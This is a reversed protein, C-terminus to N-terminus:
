LPVLSDLTKRYHNKRPNRLFQQLLFRYFFQSFCSICWQWDHKIRAAKVFPSDADYVRSDPRINGHYLERLVSEM